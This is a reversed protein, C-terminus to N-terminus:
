RPTVWTSMGQVGWRTHCAIAAAPLQRTIREGIAEDALSDTTIGESAHDIALPEGTEVSGLLLGEDVEM